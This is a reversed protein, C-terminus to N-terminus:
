PLFHKNKGVLCIYNTFFLDLKDQKMCKSRWTLFVWQVDRVFRLLTLCVCVMCVEKGAQFRVNKNVIYSNRFLVQFYKHLM